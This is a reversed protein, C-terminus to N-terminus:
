HPYPHQPVILHSTFAWGSLTVRMESGCYQCRWMGSVVPRGDEGPTSTADTLEDKIVRLNKGTWPCSAM